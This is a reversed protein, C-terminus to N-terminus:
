EEEAERVRELIEALPKTTLCKFCLNFQVPAGISKTITESTAFVDVLPSFADAGMVMGMGMRERIARQDPLHMQASVRYFNGTLGTGVNGVLPGGCGGCKTLEDPKLDSSM